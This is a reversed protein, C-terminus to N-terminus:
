VGLPRALSPSPDGNCAIRGLISQIQPSGCPYWGLPHRSVSHVRSRSPITGRPDSWWLDEGGGCLGKPNVAAGGGQEMPQGDAVVKPARLCGDSPLLRGCVVRDRLGLLQPSRALPFGGAWEVVEEVVVPVQLLCLAIASSATLIACISIMIRRMIAGRAFLSSNSRKPMCSTSILASTPVAFVLISRASLLTSPMSDLIASSSRRRSLSGSSVRRRLVLVPFVLLVAVSVPM